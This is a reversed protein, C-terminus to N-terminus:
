ADDVAMRLEERAEDVVETEFEGTKEDPVELVDVEQGEALAEGVETRDESLEKAEEEIEDELVEEKRVMVARDSSNNPTRRGTVIQDINSASKSRM